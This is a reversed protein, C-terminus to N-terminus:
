IAALEGYGSFDGALPQDFSSEVRIAIGLAGGENRRVLLSEALGQSLCDGLVPRKRNHIGIPSLDNGGWTRARKREQLM